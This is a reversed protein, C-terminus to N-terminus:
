SMAWADHWSVRCTAGTGISAGTFTLDNSGPVIKFLKSTSTLKGYVNQNDAVIEVSDQDYTITCSSSSSTLNIDLEISEGTTRNTIKPKSVPGNITITPWTPVDGDNTTNTAGQSRTGGLVVPFTLPFYTSGGSTSPISMSVYAPIQLGGLQSISSTGFSVSKVLQSQVVPYKIKCLLRFPQKIGLKTNESMDVYMVKMPLQKAVSENWRYMVYGSDSNADHQSVELSALRRLQERGDHFGDEDDPYMTGEIVMYMKGIYSNTDNIGSGEPLITESERLERRNPTRSCMRYYPNSSDDNFIIFNDATGLTSSDYISM